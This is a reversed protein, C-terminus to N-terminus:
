GRTVKVNLVRKAGAPAMNSTRAIHIGKSVVGGAIIRAGASDLVTVRNAAVEISTGLPQVTIGTIAASGPL